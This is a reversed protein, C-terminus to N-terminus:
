GGESGVNKHNKNNCEFKSFRDLYTLAEELIFEDFSYYSKESEKAIMVTQDPSFKMNTPCPTYIQIYSPGVERAIPVAKQVAQELKQPSAVTVRATYACGSTRAIEYVPVKPFKKGNPSMNLIQGMKSM